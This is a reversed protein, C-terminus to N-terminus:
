LIVRRSHGQIIERMIENPNMTAQAHGRSHGSAYRLPQPVYRIKHGQEFRLLPLRFSRGLM